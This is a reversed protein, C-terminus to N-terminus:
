NASLTARLEDLIEAPKWENGRYLKRLTGDPAVVATRLSHVIQGGEEKYSLGLFEALRRIEAPSGTAFDWRAFPQGGGGAYRAGYERLVEPTDFEPDLTVSLLRVRGALAPDGEVARDVAAFNESMLPCYDPLPCRTFIFTIVRAKGSAGGLKLPEGDQRVLSVAPLPAGPGPESGFGAAPLTTGGKTVSFNELWYGRDGVVLTARVSDGPEFEKLVEQDRVPFPMRMAPMYGPIAEHDLTVSGDANDVSVVIGKVDHRPLREDDAESGPGSAGRSCAAFLLAAALSLPLAFNRFLRAARADPLLM